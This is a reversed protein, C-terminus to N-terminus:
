NYVIILPDLDEVLEDDDKSNSIRSKYLALGFKYEGVNRVQGLTVVKSFIPIRSSREIIGNFENDFLNRFPSEDEFYLRWRLNYRRYTEEVGSYNFDFFMEIELSEGRRIFLPDPQINLKNNRYIARITKM